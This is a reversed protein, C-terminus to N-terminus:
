VVTLVSNLTGFDNAAFNPNEEDLLWEDDVVFKYEYSGPSLEVECLYHGDGLRDQMPAADPDWDNFSGSLSVKQGPKAKVAFKCVRKATNEATDIQKVM